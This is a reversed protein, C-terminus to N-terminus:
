WGLADENLKGFALDDLIFFAGAGSELGIEVSDGEPTFSYSLSLVKGYREITPGIGGPTLEVKIIDSLELAL